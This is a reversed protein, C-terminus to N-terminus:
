KIKQEFFINHQQRKAHLDHEAFLKEGTFPDKGTYYQVSSLTMPLPIFSQVQRPAYGVINKIKKKMKIMASKTSGPHNSMLYPIVAYKKGAKRAARNFNEVFNEFSNLPTKRMARLVVPDTNEPAVKINGSVHCVLRDMLGSDDDMFLDYRIGSGVTVHKVKDIKLADDLLDIWDKTYVELYKCRKPYLCSLRYCPGKKTCATNYMNASPGGIDSIHGHFSKLKTLTKVERLISERSRSRIARGQHLAISCFACGSVCGRHSTISDKIMEFAPIRVNRYKPHPQRTYPLEYVADLEKQSLRYPPYQVLFRKAIPQALVDDSHIYFKKFIESFIDKDKLGSEEDPLLLANEPVQKQFIMTGSVGELSKHDSIRKAIELIAYEGMGYVLIDARSDELISRRLKETKFDFHLFRRMSAEVGGLVVPIGKYARNLMNTYFISAREPRPCAQGEPSFPDDNRVKHFATYRSLQSDVNGATVGFFLRPPGFITVSRPDSIDPQDIVAVKYGADRLVRAIVATGFSPHDVFADGSVIIVDAQKWGLKDFEVMTAPILTDQSTM